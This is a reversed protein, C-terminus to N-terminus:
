VQGTAGLGVGLCQQLGLATSKWNSNVWKKM